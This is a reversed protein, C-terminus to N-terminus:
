MKQPKTIHVLNTGKKGTVPAKLAFLMSYASPLPRLKMMLFNPLRGKASSNVQYELFFLLAVLFATLLGVVAAGVFMSIGDLSRSVFYAGVIGLLVSHSIADALMAMKRLILFCGIMACTIGVLSGTLLIWADYSMSVAM